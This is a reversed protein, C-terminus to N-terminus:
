LGFLFPLTFFHGNDIFDRQRQNDDACQVPAQNAEEGEIGNSPDRSAGGSQEGSDNINENCKRSEPADGKQKRFLIVSDIGVCLRSSLRLQRSKLAAKNKTIVSKSVIHM